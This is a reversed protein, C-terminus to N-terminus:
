VAARPCIPGAKSVRCRRNARVPDPVGYSGAGLHGCGGCVPLANPSAYTTGERRARAGARYETIRIVHCAHCAADCGRITNPRPPFAAFPKVVGCDTCRLEGQLALADALPSRGTYRAM